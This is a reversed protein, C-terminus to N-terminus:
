RIGMVVTSTNQYAETFSKSGDQQCKKVKETLAEFDAYIVFPVRLQRRYNEFKISSGKEPM